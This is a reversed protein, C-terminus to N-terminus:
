EWFIEDPALFLRTRADAVGMVWELTPAGSIPAVGCLLEHRGAELFVETMQNVPCRHFSPAMRGGERGFAFEGDIWVRTNERSNFMVMIKCPHALTFHFKMMFMSDPPLESAPISAKQGPFERLWFESPATLDSMFRRDDQMFWPKVIHCEATMPKTTYSLQEGPKFEPLKESIELVWDALEDLTAPPTIGVIPDSVVCDRGIPAIWKDPISEPAVIGLIAGVTAATCDTDRGCNAALCISQSFDGKGLILAMVCFGLNMVCNTFNDSGWERIIHDRIMAPTDERQCRRRVDAVMRAMRSDEPVVSVGADLLHDVDNATFAASELASLFQAAYIGDADHDICADEYAYAAALTPNGPALVAWLESRIAAGLGEIFFNDYRGSAPPFIGREFNKLAVGYEDFCFKVHEMWVKALFNRDIVPKEAQRLAWAALIQLDLDDNPLMTTPVPDYFSLALPGNCGEYPAGLTGGISKGM